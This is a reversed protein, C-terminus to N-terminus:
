PEPPNSLVLEFPSLVLDNSTQPQCNYAYMLTSTYLDWDIPHDSVKTRLASLVTQNFIEVQGNTQLHYTITFSNHVNLIKCFGKLSRSTFQRGYDAILDIPSGYSFVLKNVFPEVTTTVVRLPVTRVQKTFSDM